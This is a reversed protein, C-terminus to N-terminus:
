TITGHQGSLLPKVTSTSNALFGQKIMHKKLVLKVMLLPELCSIDIM